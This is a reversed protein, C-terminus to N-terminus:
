PNPERGKKRCVDGELRFPLGFAGRHVREGRIGPGKEGRLIELTGRLVLPGGAQHGGRGGVPRGFAKPGRLLKKLILTAKTFNPAAYDGKRELGKGDGFDRSAGPRRHGVGMSFNPIAFHYV